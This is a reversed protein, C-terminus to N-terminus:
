YFLCRRILVFKYIYLIKRYNYVLKIILHKKVQKKQYELLKDRSTWKSFYRVKIFTLIIKFIKKM